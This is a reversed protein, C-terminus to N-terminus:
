QDCTLYQFARSSTHGHRFRVRWREDGGLVTSVAVRRCQTLQRSVHYAPLTPRVRGYLRRREAVEELQSGVIGNDKWQELLTM